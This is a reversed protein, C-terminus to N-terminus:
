FFGFKLFNQSVHLFKALHCVKERLKTIERFNFSFNFVSRLQKVIYEGRAQSLSSDQLLHM